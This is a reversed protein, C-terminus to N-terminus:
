WGLGSADADCRQRSSSATLIQRPSTCSHELIPRNDRRIQAQKTICSREENCFQSRDLNLLGDALSHVGDDFVEVLWLFLRTVSRVGFEELKIM